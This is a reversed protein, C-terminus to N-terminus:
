IRVGQLEVRMDKEVQLDGATINRNLARDRQIVAGVGGILAIGLSLLSILLDPSM